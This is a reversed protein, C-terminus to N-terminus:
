IADAVLLSKLVQDVMDVNTSSSASIYWLYVINM